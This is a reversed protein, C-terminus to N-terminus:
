LSQGCSPCKALWRFRSKPVVLKRCYGCFRELRGAFVPTMESPPPPSSPVPQVPPPFGNPIAPTYGTTLSATPQPASPSPIAMTATPPPQREDDVLKCIESIVQQARVLGVEFYEQGRKGKRATALAVFVRQEALGCDLTRQEFVCQFIGPTGTTADKNLEAARVHGSRTSCGIKWWGERLGPNELVYVVGPEGHNQRFNKRGRNQSRM